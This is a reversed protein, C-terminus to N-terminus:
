HVVTRIAATVLACLYSSPAQFAQTAAPERDMFPLFEPHITRFLFVYAVLLILAAAGFSVAAEKLAPIWVAPQPETEPAASESQEAPQPKDM